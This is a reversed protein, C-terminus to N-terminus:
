STQGPLPEAERADMAAKKTKDLMGLLVVWLMGVMLSCMVVLLDLWNWPDKFYEKAREQRLSGILERLTQATLVFVCIAYFADVIVIAMSMYPDPAFSQATIKPLM